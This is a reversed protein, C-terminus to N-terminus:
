ANFHPAAPNLGSNLVRLNIVHAQRAVGQYAGNALSATGAAGSAVHSGHGYPDHTRLEGTFDVSVTVNNKSGQIFSKHSRDIGSDLVAIGIGNGDFSNSGNNSRVEDAGTTASVHGQKYVDKDLAVFSIETFSELEALMGAQLKLAYIGFNPFHAKVKVAKRSIFEQFLPSAVDNMQVLVDVNDYYGMNRLEWSSKNTKSSLTPSKAETPVYSGMLLLAALLIATLRNIKVSGDALKKKM